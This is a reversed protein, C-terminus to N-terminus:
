VITIAREPCARAGQTANEELEVPVELETVTSYGDDDIDYLEPSLSYCRAHGACAKADVLIKM